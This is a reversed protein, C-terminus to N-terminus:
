TTTSPSKRGKQHRKPGIFHGAFCISKVFVYEARKPIDGGRIVEGAVEHVGVQGVMKAVRHLTLNHFIHPPMQESWVVEISCKPLSCIHIAMVEILSGNGVESRSPFVAFFQWTLRYNSGIILAIKRMKEKWLRM